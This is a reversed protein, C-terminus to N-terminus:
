AVTELLLRKREEMMQSSSSIAMATEFIRQWAQCSDNVLWGSCLTAILGQHSSLLRRRPM